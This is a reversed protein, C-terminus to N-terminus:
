PGSPNSFWENAPIRQLAAPDLGSIPPVTAGKGDVSAKQILSVPDLKMGFAKVEGGFNPEITMVYPAVVVLERGDRKINCSDEM